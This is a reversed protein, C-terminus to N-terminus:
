RFDQQRKQAVQNVTNSEPHTSILIMYEPQVLETVLLSCQLLKFPM